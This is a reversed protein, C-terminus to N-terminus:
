RVGIGVRSPPRPYEDDNKDIHLLKIDVHPYDKSWGAGGPFAFNFPLTNVEDLHNLFYWNMHSEDYWVAMVNRSLDDDIRDDLISVMESVSKLTGGWLCGQHYVAESGFAVLGNAVFANSSENSELTHWLPNQHNGPHHVGTLGKTEDVIDKLIVNSYPFLDSDLYFVYDFAGAEARTKLFTNVFKYRLLTALPWSVPPIKLLLVDDKLFYDKEEDSFALITKECDNLFYKDVSEKWKPFFDAYKNTGIFIIAVNMKNKM